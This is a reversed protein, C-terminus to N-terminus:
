GTRRQAGVLEVRLKLGGGLKIDKPLTKGVLSLFAPPNEKAQRTLYEEGGAADLAGLVM